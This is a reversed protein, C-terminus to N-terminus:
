WKLFSYYITVSIFLNLNFRSIGFFLGIFAFRKNIETYLIWQKFCIEDSIHWMCDLRLNKWLMDTNTMIITNYFYETYKNEIEMCFQVHRAGLILYHWWIYIYIYM